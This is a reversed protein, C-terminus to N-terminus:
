GSQRRYQPRRKERFAAVGEHFDESAFAARRIDLAVPAATVSDMGHTRQVYELGSRIAFPSMEAVHMAIATARDDLEIPQAAEHILGYQMAEPVHFIKGTLSLELARREGVAQVVSRYIVFPWMGIRIETLGFSSGHAAVAIHANCVLGVGGGLAPGQIAAVIPKRTRIGMTFLRQHTATNDAASPSTAEDLDMGACFVDGKSEILISGVRADDQAADVIDAISACMESTLANRKEPRAITVRLILGERSTELNPTM